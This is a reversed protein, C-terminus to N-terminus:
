LPVPPAVPITTSAGGTPPKMSSAIPSNGGSRQHQTGDGAGQGFGPLGARRHRRQARFVRQAAQCGGLIDAPATSSFSPRTGQPMRTVAAPRTPTISGPRITVPTASGSAASGCARTEGATSATSASAM